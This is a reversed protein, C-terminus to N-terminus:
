LEWQLLEALATQLEHETELLNTKVEYFIELEQLYDILSIQGYELSKKLLENTQEGPMSERYMKLMESLHIIRTYQTETENKLRQDADKYLAESAQTQANIQKITNKNEWLPVSVGVVFGHYQEMPGGEKMYGASIKPLNLAKQLKKSRHNLDINSNLSLLSLDKKKITELCEELTSPISQIPYELSEIILEKGGNMRKLENVLFDREIKASSLSKEANIRNVKAKNLEIINIDGKEYRSQYYDALQKLQDFQVQYQEILKTQCVLDLYLKKAELLVDKREISYQLDVQSNQEDSLKKKHYYATPFDFSQSVSWDIRNGEDSDNGWLYHFEVEPNDPLLGTKNELKDADAQKNLAVLVTNNQEIQKLVHEQAILPYAILLSFLIIYLKKM